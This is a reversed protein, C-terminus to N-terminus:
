LKRFVFTSIVLVQQPKKIVALLINGGIVLRKFLRIAAAATEAPKPCFCHKTKKKKWCSLYLTMSKEM